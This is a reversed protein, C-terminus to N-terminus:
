FITVYLMSTLTRVSIPERTNYLMAPKQCEPPVDLKFFFLLFLCVFLHRPLSIHNVDSIQENEKKVDQFDASSFM